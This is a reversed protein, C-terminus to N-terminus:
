EAGVHQSRQLDFQRRPPLTVTIEACCFEIKSLRQFKKEIMTKTKYNAM